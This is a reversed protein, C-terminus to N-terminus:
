DRIKEMELAKEHEVYALKAKLAAEEQQLKCKDAGTSLVTNVRRIARLVLLVLIWCQKSWTNLKM